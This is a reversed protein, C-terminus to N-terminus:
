IIVNEGKLLMVIREVPIKSGATKKTDQLKEM